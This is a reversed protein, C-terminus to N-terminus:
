INYIGLPAFCRFHPNRGRQRCFRKQVSRLQTGFRRKMHRPPATVRNTASFLEMKLPLPRCRALVCFVVCLVCVHFVFACHMFCALCLVCCVHFRVHAFRAGAACTELVGQRSSAPPRNPFHFLSESRPPLFHGLLARLCFM